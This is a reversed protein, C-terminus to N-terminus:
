MYMFSGGLIAVIEEVPFAARRRAVVVHHGPPDLRLLVPGTREDFVARAVQASLANMPLPIEGDALPMLQTHVNM